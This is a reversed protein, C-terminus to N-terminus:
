SKRHSSLVLRSCQITEDSSRQSSEFSHIKEDYYFPMTSFLNDSSDIRKSLFRHHEFTKTPMKEAFNEEFIGNLSEEDIGDDEDNNNDIEIQNGFSSNITENEGRNLLISYSSTPSSSSSSLSPNNLEISDFRKIENSDSEISMLSQYDIPFIVEYQPTAVLNVKLSVIPVISIALIQDSIVSSQKRKQRIQDTLTSKISNVRYRHRSHHHHQHHHDYSPGDLNKIVIETLGFGFENTGLPPSTKSTLDIFEIRNSNKGKFALISIINEFITAKNNSTSRDGDNM